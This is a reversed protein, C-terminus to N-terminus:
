GLIRKLFRFILEWDEIDAPRKGRFHIRKLMEVDEKRLDLEEGKARAFERLSAPVGELEAECLGMPVGLLDAVTTGLERALRQLVAGSPNRRVGREIQAIYPKSVGSREALQVVSLGKALRLAKLKEALDM